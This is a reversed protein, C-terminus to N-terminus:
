TAARVAQEWFRFTDQGIPFRRHRFTDDLWAYFARAEAGLGLLGLSRLVRSIRLWNHNSFQWADAARAAFNAAEVVQGAENQTLGVFALFRIFSRRLRSQLGADARFAVIDEPSLLPANPNFASPEPLPFLWQIFDHAEEWQEDGWAWIDDLRRAETDTSDGRYFDLLRPM